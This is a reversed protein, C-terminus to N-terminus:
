ILRHAPKRSPVLLLLGIALLATGFGGLALPGLWRAAWDDIEASHADFSVPVNDGVRYAGRGSGISATFERTKLGDDFRIIPYYSDSKRGHIVKFGTITGTGFSAHALTRQERRYATLGGAIMAGGVALFVLAAFVPVVRM